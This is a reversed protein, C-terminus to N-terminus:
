APFCGFRELEPMLRSVPLGMVNYFDGRIERVGTLGIWEQIGYAGAKDFPKYKRIYFDIAQDSLKNFVVETVVSFSLTQRASRLAVGTIVQHSRGSLASLMDFAAQYDAPKGLINEELLVVTDATLLVPGQEPSLTAWLRDGKDVALFEAVDVAKLAPDSVEEFDTKVVHFTFGAQSLLDRRRPSSSGLFLPYAAKM